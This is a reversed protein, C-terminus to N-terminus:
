LDYSEKLRICVGDIHVIMAGSSLFSSYLEFSFVSESFSVALGSILQSYWHILQSIMDILRSYMLM